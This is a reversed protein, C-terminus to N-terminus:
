RASQNRFGPRDAVVLAILIAAEAAAVCLASAGAALPVAAFLLAAAVLRISGQHRGVRAGFAAMGLLFIAPGALTVLAGADGLDGTPDAVLLEDGVAALLIGAVIPIHLYTYADRGVRGQLEARAIRRAASSALDGFYLWWLSVSTAFALSLALVNDFQLATDSATAGTIVISEGLVIIVFLQFREAFQAGDIEWERMSAIGLGPLWYQALPAALDLGLAGLWLAWRAGDDALAGGIWLPTALLAWTLIHTFNTRFTGSPVVAVVFANRGIQLACYSAAFLMARDGFGEPIAVAMLLSALMIGILLLRVVTSDPDLENTVWTTYNWAWWVVLLVLAAEGVGEWTLHTLLLHSVQTIAFVFVLDYFLELATARQEAGAERRLSARAGSAM